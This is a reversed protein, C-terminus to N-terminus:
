FLYTVGFRAIRPPVISLVQGYTLGSRASIDTAANTNLVNFLDLQFSAEGFGLKQRKEFRLTLLNQHPRRQSGVPEMLLIVQSQQALGQTFRVDRAYALGSQHTFSGALQVNYPLLYSGSVKYAWEWTQNKPFFNAANPDQPVNNLWEDRHTALFSTLMQWGNSLRKDAAVEISRYRADNGETNVDMIREFAPGRYAAAYDFYTVPVGDDATGVLGDPGPDRTTIAINYADFPRALNVQQFLESERKDIYSVRSSFNSMLQREFTATIEDTKPQELEPNLVRNTAGTRSVFTGLEGVDFRRNGNADNWRYTTAIVDNLNFTRAADPLGPFNFRGYSAKFVTKMDSTVAYALAARPAVGRWDQVELEEFNGAESFPGGPKSQAPLFSLYREARAGLNLTLRQGIRWSDKIFVSQMNMNNLGNLPSNYTVIEFPVSNQVRLQYDGNAGRLPIERSYEEFTADVGIKLDHDGGVVDEAFYSFSSTYQWRGRRSTSNNNNVSAGSNRM